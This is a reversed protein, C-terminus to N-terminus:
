LLTTRSEVENTKNRFRRWVVRNVDNQNNLYKKYLKDRHKISTKIGSTIHPKDKFKSRSIRVFPFYKNYLKYYNTSFSEYNPNVDQSNQPNIM